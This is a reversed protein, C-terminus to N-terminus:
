SNAIILNEIDALHKMWGRKGHFPEVWKLGEDVKSQYVKNEELKNFANLWTKSNYPDATFAHGGTIEILVPINSIVAPIGCAMAELPPYGYGEATSPQAVCFARQMIVLLDEDNVYPIWRCKTNPYRSMLYRQTTPTVGVCVLPRKMMKDIELLIKINKHPLGNGLVLIYGSKLGYKKLIIEAKGNKDPVFLENIGNYRIKPNFGAYGILKKTEKLSWSSVYWTLSAKRLAQKIRFRNFYNKIHRKYAYHTIDHVDHVTNISIRNGTFIPLKPYPSLLFTNSQRWINALKKESHIFSLPLKEFRSNIRNQLHSPLFEKNYGALIIKEIIQSDLIAETIGALFRGIGTTKSRFFERCDILIKHQQTM